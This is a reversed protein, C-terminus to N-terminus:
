DSIEGICYPYSVEKILCKVDRNLLSECGKARVLLYNGTHGELYGDKYVEPIFIVEKNVYKNFYELELEKSLEIIKKVREKKVVEDIQNDMLDAKTNKRRSFPFVHIKSFRIKKITDITENFLEDTENPFGVILDTTISINPRVSRIKNIRSIFEEKLYKRNMLKLIENSGSQLPIHIHDVLVESKRFVDLVEDTIENIEISSIRIRELGPVKVLDNLLDSFTYNDLNYHGTHIGSLVIEKHGNKVLNDVEEFIIEKKKSRVKGRAYPIICYSCYNECGDEIKIFARTKDFNNLKMDEFPSVMIDKVDVIKSQYEKIYKAINSKGVNGIVIDADVLEPEVQTLCGTVVVLSDPHNKKVQRIVKLCKKCATNTVTCTNIIYIDADENFVYGNSIMNEKMINSEYSNVKCGFNYIYFRM